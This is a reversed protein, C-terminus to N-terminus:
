SSILERYRLRKDKWIAKDRPVYTRTDFSRRMVRRIEHRDPLDGLALAQCLANGAATCQPVGAHVPVGCADATLQCLLENAIGGGVLYLVDSRRGTLEAMSDLRLGCELALSELATRVLQGRSQPPRQGGADLLDVLAQEMDAPAMLSPDAVNVLGSSSASKERAAEARMRPYDWPDADTDWKRRLEQILWLGVINRCLYWGGLTIENAFGRKHAEPTAIPAERVCGLISWTGCSLFAWNEGQAPVAAAVSGTDHGAVAVVPVPAPGGPGAVEPLLDGLVTAPKVLRGFMRSPLAFVDIIKRCWQGDTGLLNSNNAASLEGARQGTLFYNFLDPMNLFSAAEELQAPNDRQISLLQFLSSIPWPEYGTLRYIEERSLIPDSYDHIRDTRADRYHVPNGLLEGQDDLLGFDVGWTDVGISSLRVGRSACQQLARLMEAFLFPFDWYLTGAVRVPRNPWRHIEELTLKGDWLSGLMARGSEAGFDVALYRKAESM